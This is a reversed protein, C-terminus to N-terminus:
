VGNLPLYFPTRNAGVTSSPLEEAYASGWIKSRTSGMQLMGLVRMKELYLCTEPMFTHKGVLPINVMDFNTELILTHKRFITKAFHFPIYGLFLPICKTIPRSIAALSM